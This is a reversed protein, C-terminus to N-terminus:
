GTEMHHEVNGDTAPLDTQNFICMLALMNRGSVCSIIM